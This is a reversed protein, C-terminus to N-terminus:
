ACPEFIEIHREGLLWRQLHKAADTEIRAQWDAGVGDGCSYTEMLTVDGSDDVRRMLECRLGPMAASWAAQLARVAAAVEAVRDREVRFYIYLRRSSV